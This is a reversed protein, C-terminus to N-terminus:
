IILHFFSWTKVLIYMSMNSLPKGIPTIGEYDAFAQESCYISSEITAETVGYTNFIRISEGYRELLREYDEKM